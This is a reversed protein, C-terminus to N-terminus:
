EVTWNKPPLACTQPTSHIPTNAVGEPPRYLAHSADVQGAEKLEHAKKLIKALLLLNCGCRRCSDKENLISAHCVPCSNMMEQILSM